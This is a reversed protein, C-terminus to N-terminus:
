EKEPFSPGSWDAWGVGSIPVTKGSSAEYFSGKFAAIIEFTINDDYPDPVDYYVYHQRLPRKLPPSQVFYFVTVIGM